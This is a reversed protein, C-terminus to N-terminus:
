QGIRLLNDYAVRESTRCQPPMTVLSRENTGASSERKCRTECSDADGIGKSPSEYHKPHKPHKLHKPHKTHKVKTKTECKNSAIFNCMQCFVCFVHSRNPFNQKM